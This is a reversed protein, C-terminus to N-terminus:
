HVMDAEYQLQHVKICQFCFVGLVKSCYYTCIDFM